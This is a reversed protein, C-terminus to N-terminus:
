RPTSTSSASVRASCVTTHLRATQPHESTPRVRGLGTAPGHLRIIEFGSSGHWTAPVGVHGM